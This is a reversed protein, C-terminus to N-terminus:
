LKSSDEKMYCGHRSIYIEGGRPTPFIKLSIGLAGCFSDESFFIAEDREEEMAEGKM